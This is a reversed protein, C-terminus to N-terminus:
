LRPRPGLSRGKDILTRPRHAHAHTENSEDSVASFFRHEAPGSAGLIQEIGALPGGSVKIGM